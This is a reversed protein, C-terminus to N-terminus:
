ESGDLEDVEDAASITETALDLDRVFTKCDPIQRLLDGSPSESNVATVFGDFQSNVAMIAAIQESTVTGSSDIESALATFEDATARFGDTVDTLSSQGSAQSLEDFFADLDTAMASFFVSGKNLFAVTASAFSVEDSGAAKIALQAQYLDSSAKEVQALDAERCAESLDEFESTESSSTESSSTESSSTESSSTESSSTESSSTESSSSCGAFTSALLTGAALIVTTRRCLLTASLRL